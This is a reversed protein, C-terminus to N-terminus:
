YIRHIAIYKCILLQQWSIFPGIIQRSVSGTSVDVRLKLFAYSKLFDLQGYELYSVCYVHCKPNVSLKVCKLILELYFHKRTSPSPSPHLIEIKVSDTNLPM